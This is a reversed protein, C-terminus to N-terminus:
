SILRLHSLSNYNLSPISNFPIILGIERSPFPSAWSDTIMGPHTNTPPPPAAEIDLSFSDRVTYRNYLFLELKSKRLKM